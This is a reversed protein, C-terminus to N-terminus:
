NSMKQPPGNACLTSNNKSLIVLTKLGLSEKRGKPQWNKGLSWCRMIARLRLWLSWPSLKPEKSSTIGSFFNNPMELNPCYHSAWLWLLKKKRSQVSSVTGLSAQLLYKSFCLKINWSEEWNRVSFVMRNSNLHRGIAERYLTGMNFKFSDAGM